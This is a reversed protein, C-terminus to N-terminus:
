VIRRHSLDARAERADARARFHRDADPRRRRSREVIQSIITRELQEFAPEDRFFCTVGILLDEYLANLERPDGVSHHQDRNSLLLVRNQVIMEKM